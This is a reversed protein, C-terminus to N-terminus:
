RLLDSLPAFMPAGGDRRAGIAQYFAAASTNDPNIMWAVYAGGEAASRDAVARVLARGVGQRRAREGVFLDIMHRIPRGEQVDFGPASLAHGVPGVGEAEAVDADFRRDVGFAFRRFADADLSPPPLGELRSVEATMAAIAEADEPRAPRVRWSLRGALDTPDDLM